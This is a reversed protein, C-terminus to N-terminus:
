RFLREMCTIARVQAEFAEKSAAEQAQEKTFTHKALEEDSLFGAHAMKHCNPCLLVLNSEDNTGGDAVAKIHHMQCGHKYDNKDPLRWGCIACRYHFATYLNHNYRVKQQTANRKRIAQYNAETQSDRQCKPSCYKQHNCQPEFSKGCVPCIKTM